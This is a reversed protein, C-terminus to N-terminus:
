NTTYILSLIAIFVLLIEFVIEIIYINLFRMKFHAKSLSVYWNVYLCVCVCWVVPDM